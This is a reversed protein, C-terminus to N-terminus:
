IFVSVKITKERKRIIIAKDTHNEVVGEYTGYEEVM